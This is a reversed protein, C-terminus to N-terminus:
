SDPQDLLREILGRNAPASWDHWGIVRKVVIGNKDLLFSEPVGTTQYTLQIRM